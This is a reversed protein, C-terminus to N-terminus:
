RAKDALRGLHLGGRERALAIQRQREAFRARDEDSFAGICAPCSVGERYDPSAMDGAALPRRCAFCQGHTGPELGHRVAVRDDFVFCEGQWLSDDVPVTELYKLIGGRLHYVEEVGLSRVYATSKECRIGGTCFMAVRPKANTERFREFWGPFERFSATGPNVAGRFTGIGVEYDNRTDIVVVDPDLILANWDEPDVHAGALRNPDIGPLGMTVIESKLRVKMRRFPMKSAPSEKHELTDCGPWSRLHALVRDIGARDGCVTGNLGEGALLITGRIGAGACIEELVPKREHRDPLPVFKYLAAVVLTM